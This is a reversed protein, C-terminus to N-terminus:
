LYKTLDLKAFEEDSMNLPNFDVNTQKVPAARTASAAQKKQRLAENNVPKSVQQVQSTQVTASAVQNFMNNEQMWDGIQRYAEIDSLGNLRGMMKEKQMVADIQNYVGNHVHENIVSILTPNNAFVDRSTKDWKNSIIDITTTFQPTDQISEIVEDLAVTADNVTYTNPVYKSEEETDIELPNIGSDKILKQIADPNKKNLDILYSLKEEDMLGEQELMKAIKRIPKIATMKKQYDIGMQALTRLDDINDIQLEKGTAKLPALASKYLEEWNVEEVETKKTDVKTQDTEENSVKTDEENTEIVPEVPETVETDTDSKVSTNTTNDLDSLSLKSVKEDSMNLIDLESMNSVM